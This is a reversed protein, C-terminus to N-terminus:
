QMKITKFKRVTDEESYKVKLRADQFADIRICRAYVNKFESFHLARFKRLEV